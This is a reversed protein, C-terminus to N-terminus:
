YFGLFRIKDRYAYVTLADSDVELLETIESFKEDQDFSQELRFFEEVRKQTTQRSLEYVAKGLTLVGVISAIIIAVDKVENLEM